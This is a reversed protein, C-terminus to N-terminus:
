SSSSCMCCRDLLYVGSVRLFGNCGSAAVTDLAPARASGDPSADVFVLLIKQALLTM